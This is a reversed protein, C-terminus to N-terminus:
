KGSAKAIANRIRRAAKELSVAFEEATKATMFIRESGLVFSMRSEGRTVRVAPAEKVLIEEIKRM